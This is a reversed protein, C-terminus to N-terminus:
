PYQISQGIQRALPNGQSPSIRSVRLNFLDLHLRSLPLGFDMLNEPRHQVSGRRFALPSSCDAARGRLPKTWHRKHAIAAKPRFRGRSKLSFRTQPALRRIEDVLRRREGLEGPVTVRSLGSRAANKPWRVTLRDAVAAAVGGIASWPAFRPSSRCRTPPVDGVGSEVRAQGPVGLRTQDQASVTLLGDSARRVASARAEQVSRATGRPNCPSKEGMESSNRVPKRRARPAAFNRAGARSHTQYILLPPRPRPTTIECVWM